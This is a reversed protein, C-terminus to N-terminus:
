SLQERLEPRFRSVLIEATKYLSPFEGKADDNPLFELVTQLAPPFPKSLLYFAAVLRTLETETNAIPVLRHALVEFQRVDKCFLLERWLFRCVAARFAEIEQSPAFIAAGDCWRRLAYGPTSPADRALEALACKAYYGATERECIDLQLEQRLMVSHDIVWQPICVAAWGPPAIISPVCQLGGELENSHEYLPDLMIQERDTWGDIREVLYVRNEAATGWSTRYVLV